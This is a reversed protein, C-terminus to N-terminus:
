YPTVVAEDNDDDVRYLIRNTGRRASWVSELQHLLPAGMQKPNDILPATIFDIVAFAVAEPITERIAPAATASVVLKYQSDSVQGSPRSRKWAAYWM